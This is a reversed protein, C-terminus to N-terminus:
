NFPAGGEERECLDDQARFDLERVTGPLRSLSKLGRPSIALMVLHPHGVNDALAELSFRTDTIDIARLSRPLIPLQKLSIAGHLNLCRLNSPLREITELRNSNAFDLTTLSEPLAGIHELQHNDRIQLHQISSLTSLSALSPLETADLKLSRLGIPLTPLSDFRSFLVTLAALHQSRGLLEELARSSNPHRTARTDEFNTLFNNDIDSSIMRISEPLSTPFGTPGILNIATLSRPLKAWSAGAIKQEPNGVAITLSELMPLGSLDPVAVRSLSLQRLSRPLDSWRPMNAKDVYDIVLNKLRGPIYDKLRLQPNYLLRLTALREPVGKLSVVQTGNLTLEQLSPPLGHLSTLGTHSIELSRLTVPLDALSLANISGFSLNRLNSPLGQLNALESNAGLKLSRLSAPLGNLSKVPVDSIDLAELHPPLGRLDSIRSGRLDLYRINSAIWDVRTVDETLALTDLTSQREYLDRPLSWSELWNEQRQTKVARLALTGGGALTLFGLVSLSAMILFHWRAYSRLLLARDATSGRKAMLQLVENQNQDRAGSEILALHACALIAPDTAAGRTAILTRLRRQKRAIRDWGVLAVAAALAAIVLFVGPLLDKTQRLAGLAAGLLSSLLATTALIRQIANTLALQNVATIIDDDHQSAGAQTM